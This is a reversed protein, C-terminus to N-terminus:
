YIHLQYRTYDFATLGSLVRSCTSSPTSAKVTLDEHKAFAPTASFLLHQVHGDVGFYFAHEGGVDSFAALYRGISVPVSNLPPLLNALAILDLNTCWGSGSVELDRVHMNNDIYLTHQGNADTFSALASPTWGDTWPPPNGGGCSLHNMDGAWPYTPAVQFLDFNNPGGLSNDHQYYIHDGVSDKFGTLWQNQAAAPLAISVVALLSFVMRSKMVIRKKRKDQGLERAGRM